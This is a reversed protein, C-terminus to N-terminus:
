SSLDKQLSSFDIIEQFTLDTVKFKKPKELVASWDYSHSVPIQLKKKQKKIHGHDTDCKMCSHGSIMFKFDVTQIHPVAQMVALFMAAVHSNRNHGGCTDSFLVAYTVLFPLPTLEKLICTAIQNEGGGKHWTYCM